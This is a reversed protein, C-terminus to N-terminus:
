AQLKVLVTSGTKEQSMKSVKSFSKLYRRGNCPRIQSGISFKHHLKKAFITLGFLEMKSIQCLELYTEAKTIFKESTNKQKLGKM